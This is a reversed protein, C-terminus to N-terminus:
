VDHMFTAFADIWGDVIAMFPARIRANYMAEPGPQTLLRCQAISRLRM